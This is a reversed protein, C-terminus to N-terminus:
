LATEMRPLIRMQGDLEYQRQGIRRMGMKEYFGVANPESELQLIKYGRERALEVAHRFLQQGIGKGIHVPLVWLNEIWTVGARDQLTYFAIPQSGYEAVWSENKAFYAADFTLQPLWLEM